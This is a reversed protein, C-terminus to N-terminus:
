QMCPDKDFNVSQLLLGMSTRNGTQWQEKVFAPVELDKRRSKDAVMRAIRAKAARLLREQYSLLMIIGIPHCRTHVSPISKKQM